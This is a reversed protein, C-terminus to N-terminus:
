EKYEMLNLLSEYLPNSKLYKPVGTVFMQKRARTLAVNLKRDILTGDEETLNSVFKLQFYSNICCSYIIVDRESGQFREVTDVMIRNLAPIGLAAIEKKILAIQSRYPTIIGLTRAEDFDIRCDEYIRAVLDAVIRAESHNIKTSTGTKEPISPYFALRCVTDSDELQHPLGVSILRGGYFARNAFLAVEPHMRGQRCLMDYSPHSTLSSQRATCNRYLREFLSDKLNTLGISMLSEEYIASQESSQLVVAPLQKHDGILIFKDIANGGEEGRACLIGLLQPELIQTAEDIIAVNFHKLRFLEPKGSITAVTGVIIRCSRIREYVESRRNCSALENEILHTRYTEDCSLESGVRIFDVAPRISALSKCIEDVARNTYSLLLIQVGKDAHFTEVMKKLACSTKGTGPPGILLFYDQAAQAKLAVRTFDDKAQSVLSDLSEDFKPPRQALLLDRREQTASLYAYLGQYMSRFTTDMTDHEIAYLSDAPLVSPNQQTARLRISIEHDTLHEINGKFVMKNTVNDTGCNREYLIIADGQRFNPLVNQIDNDAVTEPLEKEEFDSRVLLLYAKHEDAAHNERIRLNYIIEGAECKEALTSLWLSAAGTRGEYDVDGSKSTYLEKTLFNYVAYFYSKEIASLRQLKEQFRDIPPRLYTEWFRGRLGRENLTSANIEELKRATYEPNNHLQIGYEDAVIRNRLDIVRRVMAWSPRSPYLLPYRTYLLYAKVKRHDMGMSYQLVAQYLLMQVKNNEKPEVKGRIAYEDAKGSKMEIFSSMDRQMYDLRGQLGLAECIYSPELVADTKDLEYGATHFTDNVTERIHEFHLKCDDFFQREKERDRLDPCAALEIPYRRFAKQMCTRYDIDENPAHIWEDLFLNAINGLLLPRANEIPQMRSLFYNGPHHGYDRFCEALSSIDILYDPELVIFSPTLIGAEDIAVDLLNMQAHQWLLKCTEAFEENIQPINYRVLYPRESVEDLPTVYLYQEDAYQFCVRMRRVRERAPPAVLYTADARPLLRYLEDPINEGSLKRVLFALTKVDRLLNERNPELRRNLIQNSTLRFTHLRNQEGVSLGTKAAIFSIRASLDTMQLSGSQMQARCIRELLDRMQKYGVTLEDEGAKCVALLLEYSEIAESKQCPLKM